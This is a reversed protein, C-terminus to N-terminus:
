YCSPAGKRNGGLQEPPEDLIGPTASLFGQGSRAVMFKLTNVYGIATGGKRRHILPDRGLFALDGIFAVRENPFYVVLDGSTHAQGFYYLMVDEKDVRFVM